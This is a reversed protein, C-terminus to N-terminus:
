VMGAVKLTVTQTAAQAQTPAGALLTGAAACILLFNFVRM